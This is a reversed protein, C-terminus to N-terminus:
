EKTNLIEMLLSPNLNEIAVSKRFIEFKGVKNDDFLIIGIEEDHKKYLNVKSKPIILYTENFVQKYNEIQGQLRQDSDFETKIEFAKSIGNFMALDAVSTGARFENFVISNSKGLENILWHTLFSNKFIYENQYSNELVSYAHKIFKLYSGYASNPIKESHRDIKVDYNGLLAVHIARNNIDTPYRAM